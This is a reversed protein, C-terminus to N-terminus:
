FRVPIVAVNCLSRYVSTVTGQLIRRLILFIKLRPKYLFDSCLKHEICKEGRFDHRKHPLKSFYPVDLCALSSLTIHRMRQAYEIVLAVSV